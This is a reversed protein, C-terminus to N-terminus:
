GRIHEDARGHALREMKESTVANIRMKESKEDLGTFGVQAATRPAPSADPSAAIPEPIPPPITALALQSPIARWGEDAVGTVLM